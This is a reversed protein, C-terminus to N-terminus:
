GGGGGGTGFAAGAEEEQHAADKMARIEQVTRCVRRSFHSGIAKESRCVVREEKNKVSAKHKAVVAEEVAGAKIKDPSSSTCGAMAAMVFLLVVIRM